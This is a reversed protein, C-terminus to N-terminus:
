NREAHEAMLTKYFNECEKRISDFYKLAEAESVDPEGVALNGVHLSYAGAFFAKRMERVQTASPKMKAFVM